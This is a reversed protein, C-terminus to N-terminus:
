LLCPRFYVNPSLGGPSGFDVKVAIMTLRRCRYPQPAQQYLKVFNHDDDVAAVRVFQVGLVAHMYDLNCRIFVDCVASKTVTADSSCM